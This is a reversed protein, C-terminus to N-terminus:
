SLPKQEAQSATTTAPEEKASRFFHYILLCMAISIASDAVNFVPWHIIKADFFDVVYGFRLRDLLNGIAGGLALAFAGAMLLSMERSRRHYTILIATVAITAFTAFVANGGSRLLSWPGGTNHALTFRFGDGLVERSEYLTMTRTIWSKTFQDGIFVVLVLFYFVSPKLGQPSTNEHKITTVESM